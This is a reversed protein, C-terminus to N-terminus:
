LVGNSLRENKTKATIGKHLQPNVFVFVVMSYVLESNRPVECLPTIYTFRLYLSNGPELTWIPFYKWVYRDFCYIM